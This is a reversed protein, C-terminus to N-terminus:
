DFSFEDSLWFSGCSELYGDGDEDWCDAQRDSGFSWDFYVNSWSGTSSGVTGPTGTALWTCFQGAEESGYPEIPNGDLDYAIEEASSCVTCNGRVGQTLGDVEFAYGASNWVPGSHLDWGVFCWTSDDTDGCDIAAYDDIFELHCWSVEHELGGPFGFKSLLDADSDSDADSDGDSDSDSDSDADSDSDSDTDSDSDADSDSDTDSDADADTDTDADSDAPDGSGDGIDVPPCAALVLPPLLLFRTM